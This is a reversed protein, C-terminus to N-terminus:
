PAPAQQPVTIDIGGWGPNGTGGGSGPPTTTTNTTTNSSGTSGPITSGPLPTAGVSAEVTPLITPLQSMPSSSYNTQLAACVKQAMGLDGYRLNMDQTCQDWQYDVMVNGSGGTSGVGGVTSTSAGAAEDDLQSGSTGQKSSDDCGGWVIALSITLVLMVAAAVMQRGRRGNGNRSEPVM